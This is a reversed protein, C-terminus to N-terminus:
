LLSAILDKVYSVQKGDAMTDMTSGYVVINPYAFNLGDTYMFKQKESTFTIASTVCDYHLNQSPYIDFFPYVAPDTWINEAGSVRSRVIEGSM